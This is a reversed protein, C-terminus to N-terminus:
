NGYVNCVNKEILLKYVSVTREFSLMILPKVELIFFYIFYNLFDSFDSMCPHEFTSSIIMERGKEKGKM